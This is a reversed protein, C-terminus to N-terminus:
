LVSEYLAATAFSHASRSGTPMKVPASSVKPLRTLLGDALDEVAEGILTALHHLQLDLHEQATTRLNRFLTRTSAADKAQDFIFHFQDRGSAKGLAKILAYAQTVDKSTPRSVIAQHDAAQALQSVAGHRLVGDILVFATEYGLEKLCASMRAQINDEGRGFQRAAKAAAVVWIQPAVHIMTDALTCSGVLADFLDFKVVQGTAACISGEGQHEDVVVVKHGHTALANATRALQLPSGSRRSTHAVALSVGRRGFLRRLGAAQDLVDAEAM